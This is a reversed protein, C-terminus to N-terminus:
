KKLWSNLLNILFFSALLGCFLLALDNLLGAFLAVILLEAIARSMGLIFAVVISRKAAPWVVLVATQWRTAGIAFSANRMARPIQNLEQIVLATHMPSTMLGLIGGLVLTMQLDNGMIHANFGGSLMTILGLGYVTVPLATIVRMWRRLYETYRIHPYETLFTAALLSLPVTILLAIALVGLIGFLWRTANPESLLGSADSQIFSYFQNLGITHQFSASATLFYLFIAGPLASVLLATAALIVVTTNPTSFRM